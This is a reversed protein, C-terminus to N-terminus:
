TETQLVLYESLALWFAGTGWWWEGTNLSRYYERTGPWTGESSGIVRGDGDVRNILGEIGKEIAPRYAEARDNDRAAAILGYLFMASASTEEYTDPEDVLTRWLGNETQLPLLRDCLDTLRQRNLKYHYSDTRFLNDLEGLTMAVWGIGRGWAGESRLRTLNQECHIYLGSHDDYLRDLHGTVQLQAEDEWDSEGLMTGIKGLVPASFYITDIYIHPLDVNHLLIGDGNRIAKTAILDYLREALATLEHRYDPHEELIDPFLLGPGWSGVFYTLHIGASLHYGLWQRLHNRGEQSDAARSARLLGYALLSQGWDTTMSEPRHRSAWSALTRTLTQQIQTKM